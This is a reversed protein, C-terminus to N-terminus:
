APPMVGHIRSLTFVREADRLHCWAYLYPPDLDLGSITRVTRSGTTAVYEITIATRDDVAHALQRVDAHPLQTAYGAIIEETDTAFPVGNYPDPAPHAHPAGTLRTAPAALEAQEPAATTRSRVGPGGVAGRPPPVPATARHSRPREIRM